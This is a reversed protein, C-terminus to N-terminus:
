WGFEKRQLCVSNNYETQTQFGKHELVNALPNVTAKAPDYGTSTMGPLYSPGFKSISTEMADAVCECVARKYKVREDKSDVCEDLVVDHITKEMCPMYALTMFRTYTYAKNAGPVLGFLRKAQDLTLAEPMTAASCACQSKIYDMMLDKRNARLCNRYYINAFDSVNKLNNIVSPDALLADAGDNHISFLADMPTEDNQARADAVFLLFTFLTLCIVSFLRM